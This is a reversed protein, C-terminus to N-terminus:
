KADAGGMREMFVKEYDQTKGLSNGAWSTLVENKEAETLEWKEGSRRLITTLYQLCIAASVSINLSETFGVMPIKLYGDCADLAEQSLGKKETGFMLAVPGTFRFDMLDTDNIHPTTGVISYGKAKLSRICEVTNNEAQNYRYINLWKSSGLVIDDIVSFRFNNEIIHVDQVGFCDCSRLVASANHAQYLDELVVTLYRTRYPINRMMIEKRSESLMEFLFDIYAPLLDKHM